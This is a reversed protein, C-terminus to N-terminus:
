VIGLFFVYSGCLLYLELDIECISASDFVDKTSVPQSLFAEIGSKYFTDM